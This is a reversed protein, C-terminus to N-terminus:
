ERMDPYKDLLEALKSREQKEISLKKYIKCMQINIDSESRSLTSIFSTRLSFHMSVTSIIARIDINTCYNREDSYQNDTCDDLEINLNGTNFTAVLVGDELLVFGWEGYDRNTQTREIYYQETARKKIIAEVENDTACLDIILCGNTSSGDSYPDRIFMVNYM